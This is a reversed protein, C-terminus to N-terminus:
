RRRNRYEPSNRLEREVERQTWGNRLVHEIFGRAGTEDPERGLVSRYAQCVIEEAKAPTMTMRERYEPSKGDLTVKVRLDYDQTAASATGSCGRGPM